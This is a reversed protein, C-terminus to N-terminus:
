PNVIQFRVAFSIEQSDKGIDDLYNTTIDTFHNSDEMARLVDIVSQRDDADGVFTAIGDDAFSLTDLWINGREPFIEALANLGNLYKARSSSWRSTLKLRDRLETAERLDEANDQIQQKFQAIDNRDQLWMGYVAGLGLLAILVGAVAWFVLRKRNKQPKTALHSHLFDLEPSEAQQYAALLAASQNDSANDLDPTMQGSAKLAARGSRVTVQQGLRDRLPALASDDTTPSWVVLDMNGGQDRGALLLLRQLDSALTGPDGSVSTTVHKIQSLAGQQALVYEAHGNQAFIGCVRRAGEAMAATASAVPMISLANLHAAKLMAKVQELRRRQMAVLLVQSSQDPLPAGSYDYVLDQLSLSFCQEAQIELIGRVNEPSTPPLTVSKAVLWRAPVGIVAHKSTLHEQRLFEHLTRGLVEPQDLDLGDPVTFTASQTIRYRGGHATAQAAHIGDHSWTLVLVSSTKIKM